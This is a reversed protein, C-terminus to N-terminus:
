LEEKKSSFKITYGGVRADNQPLTAVSSDQLGKAESLTVYTAHVSVKTSGKSKKRELDYYILM